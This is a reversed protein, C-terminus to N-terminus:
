VMTGSFDLLFILGIGMVILILACIFISKMKSLKYLDSKLLRNM